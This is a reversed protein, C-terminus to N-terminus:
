SGLKSKTTDMKGMPKKHMAPDSKSSTKKVVLDMGCKPCKGPKNSIVEPHMTCTYVTASQKTSDHVSPKAQAFAASFGFLLVASLIMTKTM